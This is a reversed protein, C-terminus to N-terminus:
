VAEYGMREAWPRLIPLVAELYPAYRRWRDTARTYLKEGIQSYSATRVRGRSSAAKRHDHLDDHWELGLWKILPELESRSDAVLREYRVSHNAAPLLDIGRHWAKFVADYTRAAEDLSTFSRMALNVQFNAMFCSLVVDYPHREALIIKANPFLRHIMPVREMNLPHKDVLWRSDDWGSERAFNFYATRLEAVREAGLKRIDEDDSLLKGTKAMMPREELVSLSPLGMLMTDLLTTGSRPFGVLFIPDRNGDEVQVAEWEAVWDETWLALDREVTERYAPGEIPEATALAEQNMREFARFATDADGRRDAIGGVLHFRRMPHITEPIAAAYEAAEDFAGDRRAQWALLYSFEPPATERDIQGILAALDDVRNLSEYIMGLEIHPNGFSEAKEVARKLATIATDMDDLRAHALGIETLLDVDDPACKEADLLVKLRAEHREARLLIEALNRYIPAEGPAISIAREFANIAGDFDDVAGLVNGLNNWSSLDDPNAALARRYAEAAASIRGEQQHIYGEIRALTPAEAGEVLALAEDFRQLSVLANALNARTARDDPRLDLLRRLYGSAMEFRNLHLTAHGALALYPALDDADPLAAEVIDLAGQMDQTRMLQMAKILAPPPSFKQPPRTAMM